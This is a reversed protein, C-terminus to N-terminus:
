IAASAGNDFIDLALGMPDPAHRFDANALAALKLNHPGAAGAEQLEL